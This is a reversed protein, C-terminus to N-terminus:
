PLFDGSVLGHGDTVTVLIQLDAIGDGDVDGQVLWNGGGQDEVRLEGAHSGFASAGIFAFAQNGGSTTDADMTALNLVDGSTFDLVHDQASATSEGASRFLFTDNGEGGTLTDAGLGGFLSDSQHGGILTDTGAGGRLDFHGDTEASGDFTLHEDAALLVAPVTLKDGAALNGDDPKLNYSYAPAEAGAVGHATLVAITDVNHITDAEFVVQSAYNGRLGLQDDRGSGGDVRDTPDFRGGEGFFFGDSGAGGTLDVHGFGAYIRFTGDTEASGRFIFTEDAELLNANVIFNQGAAVNADNMRIDYSNPGASEGGFRSDSHSLLALAEVGTLTGAFLGLAYNGQLAVQDNTGAAGDVQDFSTFGAGFYFGDNGDGGSVIDNGGDQLRFLDSGAGGELVNDSANGRLDGAGSGTYTLKEVNASMVYGSVSTRVEDFGEGANETVVDSLTDVYYVDDGTGGAMTDAGAGGDLLDNGGGTEIRNAAADGYVKDDGAGTRVNEIGFLLDLDGWTDTGRGASYTVNDPGVVNSPTLYITVAGGGTERSYDATDSGAGGDIKDRGRDGTLTDDGDNGQLSDTGATGRVDDNGMWGLLTAGSTASLTAGGILVDDFATGELSAVYDIGTITGGAVSLTGGNELQRLDVTVGATGGSLNLDLQDFGAGGDVSNGYGAVIRDDGGGGNLTDAEADVQFLERWVLFDDGEGGDLLDNGAGGFITDNGDGGHLTDNGLGGYLSDTGAGGTVVNNLDNGTLSQGGNSTGLLNEVNAGLAYSSRATRVEDVGEGANETVTDGADDVVYVDNGAGGAMADAGTGGDLMDNGAGGSLIDDGGAGSLVDGGAGGTIVNALGNGNLAQGSSALGTLNELEAGLTYSALTTQVEDLGANFNEIVSVRSDFVRYTDNGIGGELREPGYGGILTDNGAEGYFTVQFPYSDYSGDITDDGDGGYVFNTSAGAVIFDNGGQGWIFTFGSNNHADIVDAYASGRVTGIREIGSITGGGISLTSGLEFVSFDSSVGSPAGTWDLNLVDFGAGGDVNDGYGANITDNGNGGNLTDVDSGADPFNYNASAGAFPDGFLGANLIDNGDGGNLTDAGAGGTLIDDGTVGTIVNALANGTLNQGSVQGTLIEVNAPLFYSAASTRIEDIGEGPQEIITYFGSTILYLDNGTGGAMYNSSGYSMLVDDGGRGELYNNGAGANLQNPGDDGYIYDDGSGTEVNEISVLSDVNGFSDIASHPGIYVAGGASVGSSGLNVKVGLSGSEWSYNVKDVGDGGDITDNGAGGVILDNDEDGYLLDAGAGGQIFDNGAGGHIEDDGGAGNLQDGGGQGYYLEPDDTGTWTDPGETGFQAVASASAGGGAAPKTTM